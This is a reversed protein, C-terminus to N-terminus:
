SFSPLLFYLNLFFFFRPITQKERNGAKFLVTTGKEVVANTLWALVARTMLVLGSDM